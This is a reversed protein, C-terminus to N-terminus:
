LYKNADLREVLSRVAPDTMDGVVDVVANNVDTSIAFGFLLIQVVPMVLVIMMTRVDRFIHRFEKVIFAGIEKM